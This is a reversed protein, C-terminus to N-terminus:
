EWYGKGEGNRWWQERWVRQRAREAALEREYEERARHSLYFAEERERQEQRLRGTRFAALLDTAKYKAALSEQTHRELTVTDEGMRAPDGVTHLFERPYGYHDVQPDMMLARYVDPSVVIISDPPLHRNVELTMGFIRDM